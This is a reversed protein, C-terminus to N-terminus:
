QMAVGKMVNHMSNYNALAAVPGIGCSLRRCGPLRVAGYRASDTAVMRKDICAISSAAATM